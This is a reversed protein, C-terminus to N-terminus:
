RDVIRLFRRWPGPVNNRIYWQMAARRSLKRRRGGRYVFEASGDGAIDMEEGNKGEVFHPMESGIAEDKM